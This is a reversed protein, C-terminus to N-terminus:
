SESLNNLDKSNITGPGMLRASEELVVIDDTIYFLGDKILGIFKRFKQPMEM